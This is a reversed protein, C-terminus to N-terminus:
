RVVGMYKDIDDRYLIRQNYSGRFRLTMDKKSEIFPGDVIVDVNNILDLVNEDSKSLEVLEEITYGTYLWVDGRLDKIGLTLELAAIPQYVPDGGTLTVGSLLPNNTYEEIVDEVDMVFGGDFDWTKKNHCAPCHHGCGQFFVAMRLGPGDVISESEIGALKLKM